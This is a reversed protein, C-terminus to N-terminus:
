RAASPMDLAGSGRPLPHRHSDENVLLFIPSVTLVVHVLHEGIHELHGVLAALNKFVPVSSESATDKPHRTSPPATTIRTSGTSRCRSSVAFFRSGKSSGPNSAPCCSSPVGRLCM